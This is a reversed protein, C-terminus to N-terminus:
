VYHKSIGGTTCNIEAVVNKHTAVLLRSEESYSKEHWFKVYKPTGIYEHQWDNIGIQDKYLTAYASQAALVLQLLRKM